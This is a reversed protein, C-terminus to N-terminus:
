RGPKRDGYGQAVAIVPTIVPFLAGFAGWVLAWGVSQNRKYGHFASAAMSATSLAAWTAAGVNVEGMARAPPPEPQPNFGVRAAPLVHRGRLTAPTIGPPVTHRSAGRPRGWEIPTASLSGHPAHPDHFMPADHTQFVNGPPGQPTIRM